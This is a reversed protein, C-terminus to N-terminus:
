RIHVAHAACVHACPGVRRATKGSERDREAFSIGVQVLDKLRKLDYETIYIDRSEM